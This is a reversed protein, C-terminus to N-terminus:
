EPYNKPAQLFLVEILPAMLTNYVGALGNHKPDGAIKPRFRSMGHATEPEAPHSGVYAMRRPFPLRMWERNLMVM